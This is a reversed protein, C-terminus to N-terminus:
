KAIPNSQILSRVYVLAGGFGWWAVALQAFGGILPVLFVLHLFILGITLTGFSGYNEEKGQPMLFNGIVVAAFVQASYMGLGWLGAILIGLPIGILIVILLVAALPALISFVSGTVMARFPYRALFRAIHNVHSPFLNLLLLGVSFAAFLWAVQWFWNIQEWFPKYATETPQHIIKGVVAAKPIDFSRPSTYTLTGSIVASRAIVLQSVDGTDLNQEIKGFIEAREGDFTVDGQVTGKLTFSNGFIYVNGGIVSGEGIIIRDGAVTINGGVPANILVEAGAIRIDQRVPANVVVTRGLALLDAGVREAVIVSEGLVIADGAVAENVLIDSKIEIVDAKAFAAVPILLLILIFIIDLLRRM